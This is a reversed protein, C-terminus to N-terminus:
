QPTQSAARPNIDLMTFYSRTENSYNDIIDVKDLSVSCWSGFFERLKPKVARTIKGEIIQKNMDMFEFRNRLLSAGILAGEFTCEGVYKEQFRNVNRNLQPIDDTEASWCYETGTVDTWGLAFGAGTRELDRLVKRLHGLSRQGLEGSLRVVEEERRAANLLNFLTQLTSVATSEGSDDFASNVFIEMGFSSPYVNAFRLDTSRLIDQSIPGRSKPGTTIAQAISQYLGQVRVLFLGLQGINATHDSFTNGKLAIAVRERKRHRVLAVRELQLREQLQSLSELSLRAAFSQPNDALMRQGGKMAEDLEALRRSLGRLQAEATSGDINHWLNM